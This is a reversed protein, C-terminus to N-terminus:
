RGPPTATDAMVAFPHRLRHMAKEDRDAARLLPSQDATVRNGDGAAAPRRFPSIGALARPAPPTTAVTTM